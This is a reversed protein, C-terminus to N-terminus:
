QALLSRYVALTESNIIESRFHREVMERGKQGFGHRLEPDALLTEIADALAAADRAPVLVGNEGEIVVETCGPVNSAVIARSAAMAELLTKPLGERYSPLCVLNVRALLAPVDEVHGLYDVTGEDQWADLESQAIATPQAPDLGGALVFKAQRGRTALMRSAEVFERVGKDGLMRGMLLVVPIGEPEPGPVFQALDVGAGRIIEIDTEQVYGEAVLMAADTSNEVIVRSGKPNLLIKLATSVLPRLLRAKVDSSSFVYGMGIPANVIRRIGLLMAAMTGYLIPKMGASHVIDPSIHRLTRIVTDLLPIDRIPNIGHREVEIHHFVIGDDTLAQRKGNDRCLVHVEYGDALAARARSRFHTLFFWDETLVYALRPKVQSAADM